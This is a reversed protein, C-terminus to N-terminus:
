FVLNTNDYHHCAFYGPTGTSIADQPCGQGAYVQESWLIETGLFSEDDIRYVKVSISRDQHFAGPPFCHWRDAIADTCAWGAAVTREFPTMGKQSQSIAPVALLAAMIAILLSTKMILTETPGHRPKIAQNPIRGAWGLDDLYQVPQFHIPTVECNIGRQRGYPLIM